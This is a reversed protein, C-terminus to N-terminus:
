ERVETTRPARGRQDDHGVQDWGDRGLYALALARVVEGRPLYEADVDAAVAQEAAEFAAVQEDATLNLMLKSTM